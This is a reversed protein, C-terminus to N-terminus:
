TCAHLDLRVPLGMHAFLVRIAEGDSLVVEQAHRNLSAALALIADSANLAVAECYDGKLRLPALIAPLLPHPGGTHSPLLVGERLNSSPTRM